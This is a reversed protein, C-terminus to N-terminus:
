VYNFSDPKVESDARLVTAQVDKGTVDFSKVKSTDYRVASHVEAKAVPAVYRQTAPKVYTQVVPKAYPQVVAKAVHVNSQGGFAPGSVVATARAFSGTQEWPKPQQGVNRNWTAARVTYVCFLLVQFIYRM